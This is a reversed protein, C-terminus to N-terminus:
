RSCLVAVLVPLQSGPTGDVNSMAVLVGNAVNHPDPAVGGVTATAIGAALPLKGEPAEVNALAFCGRSPFPHAFRVAGAGPANPPNWPSTQAPESSSTVAGSPAIEAWARVSAGIMTPNLKAPTVAGNRIQRTGVSNTPINMAAYSTGGLAVFLALYAVANTRLAQIARKLHNM